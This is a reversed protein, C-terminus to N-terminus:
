DPDPSFSREERLSCRNGDPDLFDAVTGWPERRINVQVGKMALGDASREVDDVNFRLVTPNQSSDKGGPIARGETEIMLYHGGGLELCTLKSYQDDLEHMVRLELIDRYFHVCQDYNETCLILGTRIPKM